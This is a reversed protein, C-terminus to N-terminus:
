FCILQSVNIKFNLFMKIWVICFHSQYELNLDCPFHLDLLTNTTHLKYIIIITVNSHRKYVKLTKIQTYPTRYGKKSMSDNNKVHEGVVDVVSFFSSIDLDVIVTLNLIRYLFQLPVIM